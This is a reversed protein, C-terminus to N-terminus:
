NGTPWSLGDGWIIKAIGPGGDGIDMPTSLHHLGRGGYGFEGANVGIQSGPDGRKTIATGFGIGGKGSNGRGNKGIGGGNGAEGGTSREVGGGGGGGGKAGYGNNNVNYRGGDGGGNGDINGYGGAGGGGGAVEVYPTRSQLVNRGGRGGNGGGVGPLTLDTSGTRGGGAAVLIRETGGTSRRIEVYSDSGVSNARNSYSTGQGRPGGRLVVVDGPSVSVYNRWRLDGGDGGYGFQNATKNSKVGGAGGGICLVHIFFNSPFNSPVIWTDNGESVQRSGPTLKVPPKPPPTTTNTGSPAPTTTTTTTTKGAICKDYYSAPDIIYERQSIVGNKDVRFITDYQQGVAKDLNIILGYWGPTPIRLSPDRIDYAKFGIDVTGDKPSPQQSRFRVNDGVKIYGQYSKPETIYGRLDGIYNKIDERYTFPLASITTKITSPVVDTDQADIKQLWGANYVLPIRPAIKLSQSRFGAPSDELPSLTNTESIREILIRSPNYQTRQFLESVSTYKIDLNNNNNDQSYTGAVVGPYFKGLTHVMLGYQRTKDTYFFGNLNLTISKGVTNYTFGGTGNLIVRNPPTLQVFSLYAWIRQKQKIYEDLSKLNLDLNIEPSLSISARLRYTGKPISITGQGFVIEDVDCEINESTTAGSIDINLKNVVSNDFTILNDPGILPNTTSTIYERFNSSSLTGQTAVNTIDILHASSRNISKETLGSVLESYKAESFNNLETVQNIDSNVENLFTIQDSSILINDYDLLYVSSDREIIIKDGSIFDQSIPLENIKPIGSSPMINNINAIM